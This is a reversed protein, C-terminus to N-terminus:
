YSLSAAVIDTLNEEGDAGAVNGIGPALDLVRRQPIAGKVLRPVDDKTYGLKELGRPVGLGDLFRAIAEYLVQGIDADAVREADVNTPLYDSYIRLLERHRDPASPATFRFVTPSSHWALYLHMCCVLPVLSRLLSV